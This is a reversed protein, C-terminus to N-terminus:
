LSNTGGGGGGYGTAGGFSDRQMVNGFVQENLQKLDQKLAKLKVAMIFSPSGHFNCSSWWQRVRNVFGDFRLQLNEFKFCRRGM